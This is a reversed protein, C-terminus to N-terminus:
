LQTQYIPLLFHFTSGPLSEPDHGHSEVWIRGHHAEVIGKAIALGLGLGGGKFGLKSTSHHEIAGLVHFQEFIRRQEEIPIGVGSDQVRLNVADPMPEGSIIIEGGDPTYKIANGIVNALAVRMQGGDGEIAPLKELERVTITLSREACVPGVEELIQNVLLSLKVPGIALDLTGLAIRSVNIIDDVVSNLREIGMTLGNAIQHLDATFSDATEVPVREQLLYGYGSILTLPTRLEHSALIIFNNKMQDLHRLKENAEQLEQIKNELREVLRRSYKELHRSQEIPPLTEQHGSLYNAIQVYFEGVDIPKTLFGNCGAVLAQERSGPSNNATLAIIPTHAFDPMSRLRTTIEQGDLLPLNIDILILQPQHRRALNIGELGDNALVVEYGQSALLKRVLRQSYPDDEIYLITTAANM